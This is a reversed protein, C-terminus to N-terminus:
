RWWRGRCQLSVKSGAREKDRSPSQPHPHTQSIILTPDCCTLPSLHSKSAATYLSAQCIGSPFPLKARLYTMSLSSSIPSAGLYLIHKMSRSFNLKMFRCNFCYHGPPYLSRHPNKVFKPLCSSWEYENQPQM